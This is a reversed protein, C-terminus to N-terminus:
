QARRAGRKKQAKGVRPSAAPEDELEHPDEGALRAEMHAVRIELRRVQLDIDPNEQGRRAKAKSEGDLARLTGITQALVKRKAEVTIPDILRHELLRAIFVRRAAHDVAWKIESERDVLGPAEWIPVTAVLGRECPYERLFLGGECVPELIPDGNVLVRWRQRQLAAQYHTVDLTGNPGDGVGNAGPRLPLQDLVPLFDRTEPDWEARDARAVLLCPRRLHPLAQVSVPLLDSRMSSTRHVQGQAPRSAYTSATDSPQSM